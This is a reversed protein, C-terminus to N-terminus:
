TKAASIRLFRTTAILVPRSNEFANFLEEGIIYVKGPTHTLSHILPKQRLNTNILSSTAGLKGMALVIFMYDSRNEIFIVATDGRKLGYKLFYNAYRNIQENFESHTYREEEYLLALNEPHKKAHEEIRLGISYKADRPHKTMWEVGKMILPTKIDWSPKLKEDYIEKSIIYQETKEQDNM